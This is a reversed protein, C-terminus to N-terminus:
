PESRASRVFCRVEPRPPPGEQFGVRLFAGCSAPNNARVEGYAEYGNGWCRALEALGLDLLLSALGRGRVLRDLSLGIVARQNSATSREFRIQGIPLGDGDELVRLLALPSSLRRTFWRCHDALPITDTNFSQSRVQPDNAWWHYLWLDAVQAPRLRVGPAPGLLSATVRAVGRGDGLQVCAESMAQLADPSDLLELLATKLIVVPDVAAELNLCRAAGAAELAHAGQVQNQAVPVVLTPLGLCTREWSATGAAGLALDARAVLGALSPLGVHLNTNPRKNVRSRVDILHPAAAGLVVDVALHRLRADSLAELALGTFNYEDVGGFFVLVRVLQNRSPLLPQLQAYIPNLLAYAPGLLSTSTDPLLDRYPDPAMPDVRNADMLMNAQHFRDALDDLVLIKPASGYTLQVGEQLRQQWPAGLGYHDVVLWTPAQLPVQDRLVALSELADQEESLGLWSAYLERGSLPLNDEELNASGPLVLARFEQELLAILDGPQRRCLFVVGAGRRQLGRALARCRM